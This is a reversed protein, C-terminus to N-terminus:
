KWVPKQPPQNKYLEQDAGSSINMLFASVTSFTHMKIKTSQQDAHSPKATSASPPKGFPAEETQIAAEKKRRNQRTMVCFLIFTLRVQRPISRPPQPFKRM